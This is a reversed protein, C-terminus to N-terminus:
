PLDEARLELIKIRNERCFDRVTKPIQSDVAILIKIAYPDFEDSKKLFEAVETMRIRCTNKIEILIHLDLPLEVVGDFRAKPKARLKRKRLWEIVGREVTWGRVAHALIKDRARRAVQELQWRSAGAHYIWIGLIRTRQVIGEKALIEAKNREAPTLETSAVARAQIRALVGHANLRELIARVLDERRLAYLIPRTRSKVVLGKKWLRWLVSKGGQVDAATVVDRKSLIELAEAMSSNKRYLFTRPQPNELSYIGGARHLKGRQWLRRMLDKVKKREMGLIEAVEAPSLGRPHQGLLRLIRETATEFKKGKRTRRDQNKYERCGEDTKEQDEVCFRFDIPYTTGPAPISGAVESKAQDRENKRGM